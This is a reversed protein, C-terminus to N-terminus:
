QDHKPHPAEHLIAIFILNEDEARASHTENPAFVAMENPRLKREVGDEGTFYGTGQLVVLYVPSSPSTSPQVSQGPLLTWRLARGNHDAHLARAHAKDGSQFFELDDLLQFTEM